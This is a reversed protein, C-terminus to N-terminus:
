APSVPSDATHLALLEAPITISPLPHVQRHDPTCDKFTGDPSLLRSMHHDAHDKWWVSMGTAPDLRLYEWARWLADVRARAEPHLFWSPCWRMAPHDITKRRYAPALFDAFFRYANPYYPGRPEPDAREGATGPEDDTDSDQLENRADDAPSADASWAGDMDAGPDFEDSM